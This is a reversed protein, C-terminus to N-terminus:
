LTTDVYRLYTYVVSALLFPFKELWSRNDIFIDLLHDALWLNPRSVDGGAIQRMLNWCINEMSQVSAKIMERTLWLLQQKSSPYMKPYKELVLQTLHTCAYTLGDRTILNLDRPVIFFLLSFM